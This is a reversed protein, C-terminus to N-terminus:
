EMEVWVNEILNGVAIVKKDTVKIRAFKRSVEEWSQLGLVKLIKTIIKTDNVQVLNTSVTGNEYDFGLQVYLGLEGPKYGFYSFKVKANYIKPEEKIEIM